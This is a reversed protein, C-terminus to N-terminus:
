DFTLFAMRKVIKPCFTPRQHKMLTSSHGEVKATILLGLFDNPILRNNPCDELSLPLVASIGLQFKVMKSCQAHLLMNTDDTGNGVPASRTLKVVLVGKERAM